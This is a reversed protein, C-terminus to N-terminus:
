VGDRMVVEGGQCQALQWVIMAEGRGAGGLDCQRLRNACRM